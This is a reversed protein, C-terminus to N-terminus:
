KLCSSTYTKSLRSNMVQMKARDISIDCINEGLYIMDPRPASIRKGININNASLHKDDLKGSIFYTTIGDYKPYNAIIYDIQAKTDYIFNSETDTMPKLGASINGCIIVNKIGQQQTKKYIDNLITLQQSKSGLRTDSIAVFSFENNEDTEFTYTSIDKDITDGQNLLHFGDDYQKVIINIGSEMLDRALGLIEFDSKGLLKSVQSIHREKKIFELFKDIMEKVELSNDLSNAENIM